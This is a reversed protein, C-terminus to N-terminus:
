VECWISQIEIYVSQDIDSRLLQIFKNQWQDAKERLDRIAEQVDGSLEFTAFHRTDNGTTVRKYVECGYKAAVERIFSETM